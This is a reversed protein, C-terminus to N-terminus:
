FRSTTTDGVGLPKDIQPNVGFSSSQELLKAVDVKYDLEKPQSIYLLSYDKRYNKSNQTIEQLKLFMDNNFYRKYIDIIIKRSLPTKYPDFNLESQIQRLIEKLKIEDTKFRNDEPDLLNPEVFFNTSSPVAFSDIKNKFGNIFIRQFQFIILIGYIIGITKNYQLLLGFLIILCIICWIPISHGRYLVDLYNFRIYTGFVYLIIFLILLICNMILFPTKLNFLQKLSTLKNEM